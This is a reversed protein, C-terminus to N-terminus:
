FGAKECVGLKDNVDESLIAILSWDDRFRADKARSRLSSPSSAHSIRLACSNCLSRSMQGSAARLQNEALCSMSRRRRAHKIIKRFDFVGRKEQSDDNLFDFLEFL